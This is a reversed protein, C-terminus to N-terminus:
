WSVFVSVGWAIYWFREKWRSRESLFCKSTRRLFCNLVHCQIKTIQHQTSGSWFVDEFDCLLSYLCVDQHLFFDMKKCSELLKSGDIRVPYAGFKRWPMLPRSTPHVQTRVPTPMSLRRFRSRTLNQETRRPIDAMGLLYYQSYRSCVRV